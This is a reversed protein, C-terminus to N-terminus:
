AKLRAKEAKLLGAGKLYNSIRKGGGSKRLRKRQEKYQRISPKRNQKGRSQVAQVLDFVRNSLFGVAAGTRGSPKMLSALFFDIDLATGADIEQFHLLRENIFVEVDSEFVPFKEEGKRCLVALMSLYYSFLHSGEPDDEEIKSQAVRKIEYAEIMQGTELDPLLPLGALTQLGIVPITYRDGKYEFTCDEQKRIKPSFTGLLNVIWMYLSTLNKCINDVDEFNGYETMLVDNVPVGVFAGVAKALVRPINVEGAELREKDDLPERAKLFDIYLSLPVQYLSEYAPLTAITKGGASKLHIQNM